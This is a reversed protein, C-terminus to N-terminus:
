CAERGGEIDDSRHKVIGQGWRRNAQPRRKGDELAFVPTERHIDFGAENAIAVQIALYPLYQSGRFAM